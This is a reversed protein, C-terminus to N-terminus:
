KKEGSKIANAIKRKHHKILADAERDNLKLIGKARKAYDIFTRHEGGGSYIDYLKRASIHKGKPSQWHNAPM